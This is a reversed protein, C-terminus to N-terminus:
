GAAEDAAREAESLANLSVGLAAFNSLTVDSVSVGNRVVAKAAAVAIDDFGDITSEIGFRAGPARLTLQLWGDTKDRKTSYYRLKVDRLDGWSLQVPRGFPRGFLRFSNSRQLGTDTLQYLMGHRVATRLLFYIFLAGLGAFGWGVVGPGAAVFGGAGAASGLAGRIYDGRLADWPYAHETARGSM